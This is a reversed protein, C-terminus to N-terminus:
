HAFVWHGVPCYAYSRELTSDRGGNSSLNRPYNMQNAGGIASGGNYTYSFGLVNPVDWSRPRMRNDYSTSLSRGDGFSMAKVAGFARYSINSAYTSVGAYGSGTVSNVRGNQDYNYSVQVSGFQ